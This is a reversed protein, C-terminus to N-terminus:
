FHLTFAVPLYDSPSLFLVFHLFRLSHYWAGTTFYSDTHWFSSFSSLDTQVLAWLLMVSPRFFSAACLQTNYPISFLNGFVTLSSLHTSVCIVGGEARWTLGLCVPLASVGCNMKLTQREKRDLNLRAKPSFFPNNHAHGLKGFM